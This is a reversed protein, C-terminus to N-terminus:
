LVETVLSVRVEWAGAGYNAIPARHLNMINGGPTAKTWLGTEWAGANQLITAADGATEINRWNWPVTVTITNALPAALTASARLEMFVTKNLRLYRAGYLKYATVGMGSFNFQPDFETWQGFTEEAALKKGRLLQILLAGTQAANSGIKLKPIFWNTM